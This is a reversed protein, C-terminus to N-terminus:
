NTKSSTAVVEGETVERGSSTATTEEEPPTVETRPPAPLTPDDPLEEFRDNDNITTETKERELRVDRGRKYCYWLVFLLVIIWINAPSASSYSPPM